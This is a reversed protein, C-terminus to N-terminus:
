PADGEQVGRPRRHPRDDVAQPPSTTRTLVGSEERWLWREGSAPGYNVKPLDLRVWRKRDDGLHGYADAPPTTLSASWRANDILASAGRSSTAEGDGTRAAAKNVHHLVLIAAGTPGIIHREILATLAGMEANSNEELNSAGAFRNLTDIVILRAGEGARAIADLTRQEPIIEGGIKRAVQLGVGHLSQIMVRAKAEPDDRLWRPLHRGIQSLRWRLVITPDELSLYLVSGPAIPAAEAGAWIGWIDEGAAVSIATQMALYSKGAAGAGIMYGLSGALFGPLVFDLIPPAAEIAEGFDILTNREIM